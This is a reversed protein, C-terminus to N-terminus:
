IYSLTTKLENLSHNSLASAKSLSVLEQAIGKYLLQNFRFSEEMKCYRSEYVRKKLEMNMNCKIYFQKLRDKHIIGLDKARQMIASISIGWEKQITILEDILFKRRKNGLEAIFRYQPILFSGAFRHCIKEKDKDSIDDSLTLLLHGLEHLLTFRKREVPFNKNVVIVPIKNDIMSSLGDFEMPEDVEVVKIYNDELMEVVSSIPNEGIVWDTRILNTATEIDNAKNIQFGELPNVFKNDIALINELELYREVRDIVRYKISSIHKAGLKAKKRFEVENLEVATNRFFYDIKVGLAKSLRILNSSDPQMIGKEYRSIANKSLGSLLALEDMSFAAMKRANFLRKAFQTKM